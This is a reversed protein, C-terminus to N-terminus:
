EGKAHPPVYGDSTPHLTSPYAMLPPAAADHAGEEPDNVTTTDLSSGDPCGVPCGVPVGFGVLIGDLCGVLSCDPNGVLLGDLWGDGTPPNQKGKVMEM